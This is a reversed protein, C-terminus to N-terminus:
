YEIPKKDSKTDMKLNYYRKEKGVMISAMVDWRGMGPLKTEFSYEGDNIKPAGLKTDQNHTQPRTLIVTVNADNVSQNTDKTTIKYVLKTNNVDLNSGVYSVNYKKDFAIKANIFDNANDDVEQYKHMYIDSEEVPEKATEKITWVSLGVIGLIAITIGIPWQIGSNKKM